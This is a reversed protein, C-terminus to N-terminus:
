IEVPSPPDTKWRRRCCALLVRDLFTEFSPLGYARRKILTVTSIVGQAYGNHDAAGRRERRTRCVCKRASGRGVSWAVSRSGSRALVTSM